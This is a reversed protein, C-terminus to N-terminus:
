KAKDWPAPPLDTIGAAEAASKILGVIFWATPSRVDSALRDAVEAWATPIAVNRRPTQHAGGDGRKSPEAGDKKKKAMDPLTGAGGM